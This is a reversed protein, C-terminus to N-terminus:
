RSSEIQLAARVRTQQDAPVRVSATWREFGEHELRVLHEGARLSKLHVPTEGLLQQDVFVTAGLPESEITLAGIFLAAGASRKAPPTGDASDESSRLRASSRATERPLRVGIGSPLTLTALVVEPVPRSLLVPTSSMQGMRVISAGNLGIRRASFAAGLALLVVGTALARILVGGQPNRRWWDLVARGKTVVTPEIATRVRKATDDRATETLDQLHRLLQALEHEARNKLTTAEELQLVAAAARRELGEVYIGARDLIQDTETLNVIRMELGSLVKTIRRAKGLTWEIVEAQAELEGVRQTLQTNVDTARREIEELRREARGLGGEPTALRTFRTELATLLDVDNTAQAARHEFADIAQAIVQKRSEFERLQRALNASADTARRELQAVMQESELLSQDKAAVDAEGIAIAAGANRTEIELCRAEFKTFEEWVQARADLPHGFDDPLASEQDSSPLSAARRYAFLKRFIM